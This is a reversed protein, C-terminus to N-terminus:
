QKILIECKIFIGLYIAKLVNGVSAFVREIFIKRTRDLFGSGM